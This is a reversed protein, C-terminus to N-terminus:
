TFLIRYLPKLLKGKKNGSPHLAIKMPILHHCVRLLWEGIEQLIYVYEPFWHLGEIQNCSLWFVESGQLFSRIRIQTIFM